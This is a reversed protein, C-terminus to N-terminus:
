KDKKTIMRDLTKLCADRNKSLKFHEPLHYLASSFKYKRFYRSTSSIFEKIVEAHELNWAWIVKGKVDDHYFADVPWQFTEQRILGCNLCSVNANFDDTYQKEKPRTSPGVRKIIQEVGTVDAKSGCTPCNVSVKEPWGYWQNITTM